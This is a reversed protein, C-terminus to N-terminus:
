QLARNWSLDNRTTIYAVLKREILKLTLHDLTCRPDHRRQSVEIYGLTQFLSTLSHRLKLKCQTQLYLSLTVQTVIGYRNTRRCKPNVILTLAILSVIDDDLLQIFDSYLPVSHWCKAYLLGQVNQVSLLLLCRQYDGRKYAYLAEFDTTVITVVSCFDQAELQRYTTLIEVASQQLLEVLESKSCDSSNTAPSQCECALMNNLLSFTMDYYNSLNVLPSTVVTLTNILNKSFDGREIKHAVHLLAVATIYVAFRADLMETICFAYLLTPMSIDYESVFYTLNYENILLANWM